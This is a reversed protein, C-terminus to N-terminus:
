PSHLGLFSTPATSSVLPLAPILLVVCVPTASLTPQHRCERPSPPLSGIQKQILALPSHLLAAPALPMLGAGEPSSPCWSNIRFGVKQVQRNSRNTSSTHATRCTVQLLRRDAAPRPSCRAPASPHSCLSSLHPCTPQRKSHRLLSRALM